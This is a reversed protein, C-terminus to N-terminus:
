LTMTSCSTGTDIQFKLPIAAESKRASVYIEVAYNKTDKTAWVTYISEDSSLKDTVDDEQVHHVGQRTDRMPRPKRAGLKSKREMQKLSSQCVKAPHNKKKCKTCTQGHASCNGATHTDGCYKCKKAFNSTKHSDEHAEHKKEKRLYHLNDLQKMKHRQNAAMENTRCIDVAKQLTLTTDRPLRERHGQDRLGTVIRERLMEDEFAGFQSTAALKRLKALFQDFSEGPKQPRSNFVYGEYITNRKLEFYECLKTLIADADQREDETM